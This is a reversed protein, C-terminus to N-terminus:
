ELPTASVGCALTTDDLLVIGLYLEFEVFKIFITVKAALLCTEACVWGILGFAM